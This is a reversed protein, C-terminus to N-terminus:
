ADDVPTPAILNTDFSGQLLFSFPFRYRMFSLILNWWLVANKTERERWEPDLLDEIGERDAMASRLEKQLVWPSLRECLLPTGPGRSGNFSSSTSQVCFHPVFKQPCIPCKTTYDQSDRPTWGAVVDDDTLLTSCRPCLENDTDISIDPYVIELLNEGLLIQRLIPEPVYTKRRDESPRAAAENAEKALQQKKQDREALKRQTFRRVAQVSSRGLGSLENESTIPDDSVLRGVREKWTRKQLKNWDMEVSAGNAWEPLDEDTKGSLKRWASEASFATVLWSYVVADAVIGDEHMRGLLQTARETDGCRGCAGILYQYAEPEAKLSRKKLMDLMEFALGLQAKATAKAEEIELTTLTDTFRSRPKGKSSKQDARNCQLSASIEGTGNEEVKDPIVEDQVKEPSNEGEDVNSTKGMEGGNDIGNIEEPTGDNGGNASLPKLGELQAACAELQADKVDNGDGLSEAADERSGMSKSDDGVSAGDISTVSVKGDGLEDETDSESELVTPPTYTSLITRDDARFPNDAIELLEKGIVATFSLFFVTFTAVEASPPKEMPANEGVVVHTRGRKIHQHSGHDSGESVNRRFKAADQRQRDFEAMVASPLPRPVGFLESDLMTPFVEYSYFKVNEVEGAHNSNRRHQSFSNSQPSRPTASQSGSMRSSRTGKTSQTGSTSNSAVSLEDDDQQNPDLSIFATNTEGMQSGPLDAGSPEPPVITKLKRHVRASQLIPDKGKKVVAVSGKGGPKPSAGRLLSRFSSGRNIDRSRGGKRRYQDPAKPLGQVGGSDNSGRRMKRAKSIRGAVGVNSMIGSHKLVRDVALDFFAVDAEGSGYLRKTIFEDFMQTGVLQQLFEQTDYRQAEVFEKSRFGAGGYSAYSGENDKSPFVLYKRYNRLLYVYTDLFAEQVADWKSQKRLSEKEEKTMIMVTLDNENLEAGSNDNGNLLNKRAMDPTFMLHFAEDYLCLKSEWMADSMTKVHSPLHVGRDAYDDSKTLSRAERFVMGANEELRLQLERELNQPLPPLPHTAPGLTVLNSDLDVVVCEPSLDYLTEALNSKNIGCLYPMPASLIPILFHPLVPIYAHSWKMPFLLSLLIECCETLLSLQTSTLLVQRELALCHWVTLVNEIDLCEFLHSFPISVWTIPQNHPPSWIKIVSDLITTQVEFSGPPPAPIEACFNVIFRELPLRMEGMKSMRHLQVLYERFAALYPYASILVICKPLYVEKKSENGADSDRRSANEDNQGHRTVKSPRSASLFYPEFITLCTGYMQQGKGGTSVFYHVKPMCPKTRLRISGDPHCFCTVSDQLPNDDHDQLPYRATIVPQFDNDDVFEAEGDFSMGSTQSGHMNESSMGACASREEKASGADDGEHIDNKETQKRPVSSVIVFYEVLRREGGKTMRKQLKKTKPIDQPMEDATTSSPLGTNSAERQCGVISLGVL